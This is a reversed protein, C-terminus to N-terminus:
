GYIRPYLPGGFPEGASLGAKAIKKLSAQSGTQVGTYITDSPVYNLIMTWRPRDTTNAPAEHVTYMAHATADGPRFPEPKTVPMERLEPYVDLLPCRLHGDKVMNGLAGLTHSRDIWRVLGMDPTIHDLAIWFTIRGARDMPLSGPGDQHWDTPASAPVGTKQQTGIKVALLNTWMLVGIDRRMLRQANHGMEAGLGVAGFLEDEECVGHHDQWPNSAVDTDGRMVNQSGDPGMIGKARELLRGALDESILQPLKVWGHERYHHFEEDTIARIGTEDM